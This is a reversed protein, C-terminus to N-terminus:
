FGREVSNFCNENGRVCSVERCEQGVGGVFLKRAEISLGRALVSRSRLDYELVLFLSTM